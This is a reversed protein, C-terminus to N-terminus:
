QQKKKKLKKVKMEYNWRAMKVDYENIENEEFSRRLCFMKVRECLFLHCSAM